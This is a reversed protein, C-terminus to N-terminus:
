LAARRQARANSRAQLLNVDVQKDFAGQQHMALALSKSHELMQNALGQLNISIRVQGRQARASTKIVLGLQQLNLICKKQELATLGTQSSCGETSFNFQYLGQDDMASRVDSTLSSLAYTLWIASIVNGTIDVFVRHFTIPQQGLWDLLVASTVMASDLKFPDAENSAVTEAVAGLPGIERIHGGPGLPSPTGIASPSDNPELQLTSAVQPPVADADRRKHRRQQRTKLSLVNSM